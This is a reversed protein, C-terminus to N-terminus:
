EKILLGMDTATLIAQTQLKFVVFIVLRPESVKFGMPVTKKKCFAIMIAHM